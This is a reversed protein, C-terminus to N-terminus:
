GPNRRFGSLQCIRVRMILFHGQITNGTFSCIGAKGLVYLEFLDVLFGWDDGFTLYCCLLSLSLRHVCAMNGLAARTSTM